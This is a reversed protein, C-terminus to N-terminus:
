GADRRASVEVRIGVSDGVIGNTLWEGTGLGFAARVVTLDGTVRARDGDLELIFPLVVPLSTGKISLTGDAEFRPGGLARFSAAEFRAVPHAAVDFWPATRATADREDNGTDLSATDITVTVRSSALDDPDFRIDAEFRRFEGGVKAGMQTTAMAIRSAAPDIRWPPAGAVATAPIMALALALGLSPIRATM